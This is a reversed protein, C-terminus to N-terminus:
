LAFPFHSCKLFGARKIFSPLLGAGNRPATVAMTQMVSPAILKILVYRQLSDASIVSKRKM